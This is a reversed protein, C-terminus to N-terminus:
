RLPDEASQYLDRKKSLAQRMLTLSRPLDVKPGSLPAKDLALDVMGELWALASKEQLLSIVNM